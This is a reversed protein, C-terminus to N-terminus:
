PPAIRYIREDSLSIVYLEGNADEAFSVIRAPGEKWLLVPEVYGGGAATQADIAWIRGTCFDTFLYWGYLGPVTKGRYVYGGTVSCGWMHPNLEESHGYEWVPLTLGARDCGTEPSFCRSGEMTRWGYNGGSRIVSIEELRHQGVDGAWLLGTKHDFSMRWPNRVGYAWIEPRVGDGELFPNDTPIAYPEDYSANRVDIRIVTSLLTSLNQGHGHPDNASGGDGYGLYLM